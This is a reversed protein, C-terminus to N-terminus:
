EVEFNLNATYVTEDAKPSDNKEKYTVSIIQFGAHRIRINIRGKEDTTGRPKGDYSVVVNQIPKGKFVALLRVKNGKKLKFPDNMPIIELYDTLPQRLNDNWEDFRKSIEISYWSYISVKTENKPINKTGYPTKTWYGSSFLSYVVACDGQLTVPPDKSASAVVEKGDGDFCKVELVNEPKYVITEAEHELTDKHGYMVTYSGNEKEIWLEHAYLYSSLFLFIFPVYLFKKM